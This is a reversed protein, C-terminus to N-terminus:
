MACMQRVFRRAETFYLLWHIRYQEDQNLWVCEGNEKAGGGENEDDFDDSGSPSSGFECLETHCVTHKKGECKGGGM